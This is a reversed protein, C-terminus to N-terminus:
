RSALGPPPRVVTFEDMPSHFIAVSVDWIGCVKRRYDKSTALALLMRPVKLQPTGQYVDDRNVVNHQQVVVRSWVNSEDGDRPKLDDCWRDAEDIWYYVHHDNVQKRETQRCKVVTELDLLKGTRDGYLDSKPEM